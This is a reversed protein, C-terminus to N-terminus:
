AKIRPNSFGASADALTGAAGDGTGIDSSSITSRSALSSSTIALFASFFLRLTFFSEGTFGCWFGRQWRSILSRRAAKTPNESKCPATFPAAGLFVQVRHPM